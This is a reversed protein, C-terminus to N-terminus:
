VTSMDRPLLLVKLNQRSEMKECNRGNPIPADTMFVSRVSSITWSADPQGVEHLLSHGLWVAKHRGAHGLRPIRKPSKIHTPTNVPPAEVWRLKCAAKADFSQPVSAQGAIFHEYSIRRLRIASPNRFRTSRTTATSFSKEQWSIRVPGTEPRFPTCSKPRKRHCASSFQSDVFPIKRKELRL